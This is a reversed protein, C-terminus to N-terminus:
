LTIEPNGGTYKFKYLEHICVNYIDAVKYKKTTIQEEKDYHNSSEVSDADYTKISFSDLYHEYPNDAVVTGTNTNYGEIENLSETTCHTDTDMKQASDCSTFSLTILLSVLGFLMKVKKM